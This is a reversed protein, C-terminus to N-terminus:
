FKSELIKDIEDQITIVSDEPLKLSIGSEVRIIEDGNHYLILTPLYKINENKFVEAHKGMHLTESSCDKLQKLNIENSEVFAASFQVVSIGSKDQAFSQTVLLVLLLLLRM